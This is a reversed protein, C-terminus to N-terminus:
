TRAFDHALLPLVRPLEPRCLLSTNCWLLLEIRYVLTWNCHTGQSAYKADCLNCITSTCYGLGVLGPDRM